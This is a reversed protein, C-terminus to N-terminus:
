QIQKKADEKLLCWVGESMWRLIDMMRSAYHLVHVSLCAQIFIVYVRKGFYFAHHLNKNKLRLAATLNSSFLHVSCFSVLFLPPSHREPKSLPSKIPFTLKRLLSSRVHWCIMRYHQCPAPNRLRYKIPVTHQAYVTKLFSRWLTMSRVRTKSRHAEGIGSSYNRSSLWWLSLCM